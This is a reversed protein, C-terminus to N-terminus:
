SMRGVTKRCLLIASSTRKQKFILANKGHEGGSIVQLLPLATPVSGPSHWSFLYFHLYVTCQKAMATNWTQPCM